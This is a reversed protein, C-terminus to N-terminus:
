PGSRHFPPPVAMLVLIPVNSGRARIPYGTQSAPRSAASIATVSANAATVTTRSRPSSAARTLPAWPVAAFVGVSSLPPTMPRM